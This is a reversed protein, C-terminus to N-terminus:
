VKKMLIRDGFDFTYLGNHAAVIASRLSLPAM